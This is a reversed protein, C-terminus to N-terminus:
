NRTIYVLINKDPHGLASVNSTYATQITQSYSFNLPILLLILFTFIFLFSLTRGGGDLNKHFLSKSHLATKPHVSQKTEGKTSECHSIFKYLM